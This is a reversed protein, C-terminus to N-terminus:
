VIFWTDVGNSFFTLSSYASTIFVTTDGLIADSGTWEVETDLGDVVTGKTLTTFSSDTNVFPTDGVVYNATPQTYKFIGSYSM